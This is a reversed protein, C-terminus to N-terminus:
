RRSAWELGSTGVKIEFTSERRPTMTSSTRRRFWANIDWHKYTPIRVLNEPADIQSRAFGDQEARTQEVIHHIDYGRKPTSVAQQLEELTKPPDRYADVREAHEQLWPVAELLAGLPGGRRAIGRGIRNREQATKPREKPVEPPDNSPLPGALRIRGTGASNGDSTWRGGNPDGAPVRPQSPNYAKILRLFRRLKLETKIAAFERQLQLIEQLEAASDPTEVDLDARRKRELAQSGRWLKQNPQLWRQADPRTWLSANPKMWRKRQHEIWAPKDQFM